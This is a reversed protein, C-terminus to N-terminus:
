WKELHVVKEQYRTRAELRVAPVGIAAIGVPLVTEPLGLLDRLLAIRDARPHVGLWCAGYGLGQAALLLNQMAASCDQLMYSLEGGHARALSGCVVIGLAAQNLFKGNPLGQAIQGRRAAERVVVFEWPDKCCASPAAMAAELMDRIATAPIEGAGFERVSRRAFILNLKANM